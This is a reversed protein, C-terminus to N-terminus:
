HAEKSNALKSVSHIMTKASPMEYDLILQIVKEVLDEM